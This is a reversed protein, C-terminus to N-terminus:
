ARACRWASRDGRVGPVIWGLYGPALRSDLFCHLYDDTKADPEGTAAFEAEVGALFRRNRALGFARAVHSRAGDAGLVFRATIGAPEIEVVGDRM